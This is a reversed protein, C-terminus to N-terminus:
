ISFCRLRIVPGTKIEVFRQIARTAVIEAYSGTPLTRLHDTGSTDKTSQGSRKFLCPCQQRNGGADKAIISRCPLVKRPRAEPSFVLALESACARFCDIIRNAARQHRKTYLTFVRRCLCFTFVNVFMSSPSESCYSVPHVYVCM